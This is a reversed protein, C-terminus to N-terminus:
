DESRIDRAGGGPAPPSIAYAGATNNYATSEPTGAAVTLEALVHGQMKKVYLERLVPDTGNANFLVLNSNFKETDARDRDLKLSENYL